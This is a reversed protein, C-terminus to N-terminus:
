IQFLHQWISLIYVYAVSEFKYNLKSNRETGNLTLKIWSNPCFYLNIESIFLAISVGSRLVVNTEENNKRKKIM